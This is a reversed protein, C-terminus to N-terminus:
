FFRFHESKLFYGVDEANVRFRESAVEDGLFDVPELDTVLPSNGGFFHLSQEASSWREQDVRVVVVRDDDLTVDVESM